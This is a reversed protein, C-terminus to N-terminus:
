ILPAVEPGAHKLHAIATRLLAAPWQGPATELDGLFGYNLVSGYQAAMLRSAPALVGMGMVSTPLGHDSNQFELLKAVEAPSSVRAAVKFAAAGAAKAAKASKQLLQKSPLGEFDHYSAIWPIGRARIEDLVPTMEDVSALEIDILSADDLTGRLWEMRTAADAPLAGGESQRRATFLLPIDLAQWLAREAVVGQAAILDLRIEAVDCASAVAVSTIASLDDATAFSGVTLPRRPDLTLSPM